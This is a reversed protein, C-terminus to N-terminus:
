KFFILFIIPHVVSLVFSISSSHCVLVLMNESLQSLCSALQKYSVLACHNALYDAM